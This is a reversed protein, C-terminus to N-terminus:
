GSFRSRLPSSIMAIRTTALDALAPTRLAEKARGVISDLLDGTGIGTAASVPIPLGFGFAAWAPNEAERRTEAREAKNGVIIVAKKKKRLARSLERDEPRIGLRLDVVFLILHAEKMALEAQRVIAREIEDKRLVDLGGTDVITFEVDRWLVIGYNRDRTTGPIPSVLAKSEGILRNFLTSKGVNQRGVIAVTLTHSKM